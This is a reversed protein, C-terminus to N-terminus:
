KRKNFCCNRIGYKNRRTYVWRVYQYLDLVRTTSISSDNNRRGTDREAGVIHDGDQHSDM